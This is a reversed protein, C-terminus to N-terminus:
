VGNANEVASLYIDELSLDFVSAEAGLARITQLAAPDHERVVGAVTEATETKTLWTLRAAADRANGNLTVKKVSEKLADLSDELILRGKRLFGVRTAVREVDSTIHSSLLVSRQKEQILRIIVTLFSRRVGPDLGGAPEDLVMLEPQQAAVLVLAVQRKQGRSLSRIRASLSLDLQGLLEQALAADWAPYFTRHFDVHEQITMWEFLSETESLYGVRTKLPVADRVPDLGLTSVTGRSARLLGSIVRICTTKGAGNPGLLAYVEGPQVTLSLDDLARSIGYFQTVHELSISASM